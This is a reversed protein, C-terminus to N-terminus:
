PLFVEHEHKEGMKMELDIGKLSQKLITIRLAFKIVVPKAKWSFLKRSLM